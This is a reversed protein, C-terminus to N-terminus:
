CLVRVSVSGTSTHLIHYVPLVLVVPSQEPPAVGRTVGSAAEALGVDLWIFKRSMMGGGGCWWVM